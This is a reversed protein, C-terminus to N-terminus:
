LDISVNIWEEDLKSNYSQYFRIADINWNLVQWQIKPYNNNKAYTILFNLLQKGYGRGRHNKTIILDELYLCPGKWTSYRNYCLAMGIIENNLEAVFCVFKPHNGFGDNTLREVSNLLESEAKEFIALEKILNFVFPMDSINANRISTM